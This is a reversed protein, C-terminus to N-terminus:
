RWSTSYICSQCNSRNSFKREKMEGLHARVSIGWLAVRVELEDCKTTPFFENESYCDGAECPSPNVCEAFAMSKDTDYGGIMRFGKPFATTKGTEFIYYASTQAIVDRKYTDEDRIYKYVTPHWYISRNEEVNGTLEGVTTSAALTDLIGARPDVASQPGYFTHVHDSVCKDSLIPDVRADGIPLSSDFLFILIQPPKFFCTLM